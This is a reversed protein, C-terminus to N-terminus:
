PREAVRMRQEILRLYKSVESAFIYNPKKLLKEFITRAKDYDRQAFQLHALTLSADDGYASDGYLAVFDELVKLQEPNKVASIGTFFYAPDSHDRIFQLAQADRGEPKVIAVEIPKSSVTDRGDLSRLRVHLRYNGLTPFVNNLKYGLATTEKIQEGPQFVRSSAVVDSILMSVPVEQPGDPRDIYLHLFSAGFKLVTHGTLPTKTDNKFTIILPIPQLELYKTNPTELVLTFAQFQDSTQASVSASVQCIMFAAALLLVNKSLKMM